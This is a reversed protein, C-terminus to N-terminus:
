KLLYSFDYLEYSLGSNIFACCFIASTAIYLFLIGVLIKAKTMSSQAISSQDELTATYSVRKWLYLSILFPLFFVTMGLIIRIISNMEICRALNGSPDTDTADQILFLSAKVSILFLTIPLYFRLYLVAQDFLRTSYMILGTGVAFILSLLIPQCVIVTLHWQKNEIDKDDDETNNDLNDM